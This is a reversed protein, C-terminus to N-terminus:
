ELVVMNEETEATLLSPEETTYTIWTAVHDQMGQGVPLEHVQPINNLELDEAPGIGSLLLLQPSQYSGASLIVEQSVRIESFAECTKHRARGESVRLPGGAGHLESAGRENDESKIFYPLVDDWGWGDFGMAAWGDYDARNGRIYVMANISSSGGLTRGRPLHRQRYGLGPEP